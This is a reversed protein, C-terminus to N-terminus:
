EDRGDRGALCGFRDHFHGGGLRDLTGVVFALIAVDNQRVSQAREEDVRRVAVTGGRGDANGPAAVVVRVFVRSEGMEDFVHQEDCGVLVGFDVAEGLEDALVTATAAGVRTAIPRGVVQGDFLVAQGFGQIPERLEEDRRGEIGVVGLALLLRHLRLVLHLEFLVVPACLGNM